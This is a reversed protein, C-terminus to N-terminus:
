VKGKVRLAQLRAAYAKLGADANVDMPHATDVVSPGPCMDMFFVCEGIDCPLIAHRCDCVGYKSRKEDSKSCYKKDRYIECVTKGECMGM